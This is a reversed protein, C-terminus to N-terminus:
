SADAAGERASVERSRRLLEVLKPAPELRIEGAEWGLGAADAEAAARKVLAASSERGLEVIAPESGDRWVLEVNPAHQPILLCRSRLDFDMEYGYAIAAVGLAAVATRAAVTAERSVDAFRLRRLAALSLVTTQRASSVTVGGNIVNGDANTHFSPTINGHLAESPRGDKKFPKPRGKADREAEEPDLTWLQESDRHELLVAAAREIQFPDIRSAVGKGPVACDGVIEAVYARQFKAGLGGKPGTSDWQGFLLATPAYRFMATANRPQADTIARGVESLRFLTGDLLSDRFIADALRHPAELVTLRGIDSVDPEGSFDVFPVPFRLQEAEWGELLALEARNAQSAVSDLLVTTSVRDGVQREEIAYKHVAGREVSYTPPFVKGGEGEAPQLSMISRLAVAGGAVSERLMEYTLEAM